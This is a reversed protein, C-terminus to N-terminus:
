ERVVPVDEWPSWGSGDPQLAGSANQMLGFVSYQLVRDIKVSEVTGDERVGYPLRQELWRLKIM